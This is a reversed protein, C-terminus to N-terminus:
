WKETKGKSTVFPNVFCYGFCVDSRWVCLGWKYCCWLWRLNIWLFCQWCLEKQVWAMRDKRYWFLLQLQWAPRTQSKCLNIKKKGLIKRCSFSRKVSLIIIQFRSPMAGGSVRSSKPWIICKTSQKKEQGKDTQASFTTHCDGTVHAPWMCVVPSKSAATKCVVHGM